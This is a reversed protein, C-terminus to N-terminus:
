CKDLLTKIAETKCSPQQLLLQLLNLSNEPIQSLAQIDRELWGVPLGLHSELARMQRLTPEKYALCYATLQGSSVYPNMRVVANKHTGFFVTRLYMFNRSIVTYEGM